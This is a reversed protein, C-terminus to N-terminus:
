FHIVESVEKDLVARRRRTEAAEAARGLQHVLGRSRAWMALDCTAFPLLHALKPDASVWSTFAALPEVILKEDAHKFAMASLYLFLVSACDQECYKVVTEIQGQQHLSQVDSGNVDLKCPIDLRGCLEALSPAQAARYNTFLDITDAHYAAGYRPAHCLKSLKPLHVKAAYATLALVPADFSRSNHGAVTGINPLFDEVRHLAEEERGEEFIVSEVSFAWRGGGEAAATLFSAILPRHHPWKQFGENPAAVDGAPTLQITEIDFAVIRQTDFEPQHYHRQRM